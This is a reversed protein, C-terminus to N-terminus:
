TEGGTFKILRLHSGFVPIKSFSGLHNKHTTQTSFWHRLIQVDVKLDIVGHASNLISCHCTRDLDYPEDRRCKERGGGTKM